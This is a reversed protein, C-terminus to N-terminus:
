CRNARGTRILISVISKRSNRRPRRRARRPQNLLYLGENYLKDAPEEVFVDDKAFLKDM